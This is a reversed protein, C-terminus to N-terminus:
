RLEVQCSSVLQEAREFQRQGAEGLAVEPQLDFHLILNGVLLERTIHVERHGGLRLLAVRPWPRAPHHRTLRAMVVCLVTTRAAATTTRDPPTHAFACVTPVVPPHRVGDIRGADASGCAPEIVLKTRSAEPAGTEPAMTDATPPRVKVPVVSAFPRQVSASSGAPSYRTRTCRAPKPVDWLKITRTVAPVSAAWSTTSVSARFPGPGLFPGAASDSIRAAPIPVPAKM